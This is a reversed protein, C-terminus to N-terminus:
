CIESKCIYYSQFKLELHYTGCKKANDKTGFNYLKEFLEILEKKCVFYKENKVIAQICGFYDCEKKDFSLSFDVYRLLDPKFINNLNLRITANDDLILYKVPTKFVRKRVVIPFEEDYNSHAYNCGPCEHAVISKSIVLENMNGVFRRNFEFREIKLIKVHLLNNEGVIYECWCRDCKKKDSKWQKTGYGDKIIRTNELGTSAM